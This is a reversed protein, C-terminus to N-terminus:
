NGRNEREGERKVERRRYGLLICEKGETKEKREWNGAVRWEKKGWGGTKPCTSLRPRITSLGASTCWLLTPWCTAPSEPTRMSPWVTSPLSTPPAYPPTQPPSSSSVHPSALTFPTVPTVLTFSPSSTHCSATTHYCSHIPSLLAPPPSRPLLFPLSLLPLLFSLILTCPPSLLSYFPLPRRVECKVM